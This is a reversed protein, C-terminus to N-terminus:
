LKRAVILQNFLLFDMKIKRLFKEIVTEFPFQSFPSVMFHTAEEIIFIGLLHYHKKM